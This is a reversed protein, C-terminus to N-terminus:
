IHILSLARQAAKHNGVNRVIVHHQWLLDQSQARKAGLVFKGGNSRHQCLMQVVHAGFVRGGQFIQAHALHTYSVSRASRMRAAVAMLGTQATALSM